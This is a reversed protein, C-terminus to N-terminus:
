LEILAPGAATLFFSSREAAAPFENRYVHAWVALFDDAADAKVM